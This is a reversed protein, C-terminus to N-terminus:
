KSESNADEDEGEDQQEVEGNESARQKREAHIDVDYFEAYKNISEIILDIFASASDNALDVEGNIRREGKEVMKAVGVIEYIEQRYDMKLNIYTELNNTANATLSKVEGVRNIKDKTVLVGHTAGNRRDDDLKILSQSLEADSTEVISMERLNDLNQLINKEVQALMFVKEDIMDVPPIFQANAPFVCVSEGDVNMEEWGDEGKVRIRKPMYTRSVKGIPTFEAWENADRLYVIGGNTAIIYQIYNPETDETAKGSLIINNCLMSLYPATKGSGIGVAKDWCPDIFKRGSRTAM